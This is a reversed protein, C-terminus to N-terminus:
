RSTRTPVESLDVDVHVALVTMPLPYPQRFILRADREWRGLLPPMEVDGTFMKIPSGMLENTRQPEEAFGEFRDEGGPNYITDQPSTFDRVRSILPFRTRDFRVTVNNIQTIAAQLRPDDPELDLTEIDSVYGLGVHVRASEDPLEIKGNQVTLGGVYDGDALVSVDAGELHWLGTITKVAKRVVGGRVYAHPLALALESGEDDASKLTISFSDASRVKYKRLNLQDPQRSTYNEDVEPEWEIEDFEIIDDVSFPNVVSSDIDVQIHGDEAVVVNTVDYPEDYSLGADVFFCDQVVNFRRSDSREIFKVVRGGVRREVVFYPADEEDERETPRGSTVSLFSGATTWLTWALIQRMPSYLMSACAGDERICFFRPNSGQLSAAAYIPSEDFMHSAFTSLVDPVYGAQQRDYHLGIVERRNARVFVVVNDFVAPAIYTSGFSTQRLSDFTSPTLPVGAAGNVRFEGADTFVILDNLSVIHRIDNAVGDALLGFVADDDLSPSHIAYNSFRGVQSLFLANSQNLTGGFVRRQKFYSVARPYDGADAFVHSYIPLTYSNDPIVGSDVFDQADTHGIYSFTGYDDRYVLYYRPTDSPARFVVRNEFDTKKSNALRFFCPYVYGGRVYPSFNRSDVGSLEFTGLGVDLNAVRYRNGALEGMGNIGSIQIEDGNRLRAFPKGGGLAPTKFTLSASEVGAGDANVARLRVTYTRANELGLITHTTDTGGTSIWEGSGDLEFEYSTVAPTATVANWLIQIDSNYTLFGTSRFTPATPLAM